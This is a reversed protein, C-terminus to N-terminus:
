AKLKLELQAMLWDGIPLKRSHQLEQRLKLLASKEHSPTRTLRLLNRIILQYNAKRIAPLAQTRRLFMRFSDALTELALLDGSEYHIRLLYARADLGYYVDHFDSLTRYFYRAARVLDREFYALVGEGFDVAIGKGMDVLRQAHVAVFNRVWDLSGLRCGIVVANKFHPALMAPLTDFYGRGLIEQYLTLIEQLYQDEGGNIKRVCYNIAATYMDEMHRDELVASSFQMRFELFLEIHSPNQISRYLLFFLRSVLPLQPLLHEVMEIFGPDERPVGHRGTVNRETQEAFMMEMRKAAYELDL